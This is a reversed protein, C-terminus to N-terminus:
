LRKMCVHMISSRKDVIPGALICYTHSVFFFQHGKGKVSTLKFFMFISYLCKEDRFLYTQHETKLLMHKVDNQTHKPGM